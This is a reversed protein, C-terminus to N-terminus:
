LAYALIYDVRGMWRAYIRSALCEEAYREAVEESSVEMRQNQLVMERVGRGAMKQFVSMQRELGRRGHGNFESADIESRFNNPDRMLADMETQLLSTSLQQALKFSDDIMTVFHQGSHRILTMVRKAHARSRSIEEVAWWCNRKEQVTYDERSLAGTGTGIVTSIIPSFTLRRKKNIDVKNQECIKNRMGKETNDTASANPLHRSGASAGSLFIVDAERQSVSNLEQPLNM